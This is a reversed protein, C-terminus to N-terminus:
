SSKMRATVFSRAAIAVYVVCLVAMISQVIVAAPRAVDEPRSILTILSMLGRGAGLFGLLLQAVNTFEGPPGVPDSIIHAGECVM